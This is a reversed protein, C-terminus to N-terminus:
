HSLQTPTIHKEKPTFLKEFEELEEAGVYFVDDVIFNGSVDSLRGPALELGMFHDYSKGDPAFIGFEKANRFGFRPYYAPNGMLFVGNFGLEAARALSEKILSGGIGRGQYEPLVSVPGLCLVEHSESNTGLVRAKSHMINGVIREEDCAVFDLEAFFIPSERLKHAVLHEDCGPKYIDWFAERTLIEVERYDAPKEIRITIAMLM